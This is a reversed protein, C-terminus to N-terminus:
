GYVPASNVSAIEKDADDENHIEQISACLTEKLQKWSPLGAPISAGAGIIVIFSQPDESIKKKLSDLETM